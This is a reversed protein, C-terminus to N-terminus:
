WAVEAIQDFDFETEWAQDVELPDQEMADLVGAADGRDCLSRYLCFRCREVFETRTFDEVATEAVQTILAEIVEVDEHYREENYNFEMPQEPFEPYWYRMLVLEPEVANGQHFGAGSMVLLAPYIRTQLRDQMQDRRLLRRSTKWDVIVWAQDPDVALLDFKGVIPWGAFQGRLRVEPYRVEPLDILGSQLYNQWWLSLSPDSEATASLRDQPIGLQHQHVLRHFDNGLQLLHELSQPPEAPLAPWPLHILYRYQFRRRCEVFDQLSAQSFIFDVPLM